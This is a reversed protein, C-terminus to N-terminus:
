QRGAFVLSITDYWGIRDFDISEIRDLNLGIVNLNSVDVRCELQNRTLNISLTKQQNDQLIGTM